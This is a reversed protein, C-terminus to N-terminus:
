HPQILIGLLLLQARRILRLLLVLSALTIYFTGVAFQVIPICPTNLVACCYKSSYSLPLDVVALSVVQLLSWFYNLKLTLFPFVSCGQAAGGVAESSM